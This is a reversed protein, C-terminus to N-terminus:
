PNPQILRFEEVGRQSVTAEIVLCAAPAQTLPNVDVWLGGGIGPDLFVVIELNKVKRMASVVSRPTGDYAMRLIASRAYSVLIDASLFRTRALGEIADVPGCIVVGTASSPHGMSPAAVAADDISSIPVNAVTGMDGARAGPAPVEAETQECSSEAEGHEITGETHVGSDAEPNRSEGESEEEPEDRIDPSNKIKRDTSEEVFEVQLGGIHTSTDREGDLDLGFEFNLPSGRDPRDSDSLTTGIDLEVLGGALVVPFGVKIADDKDLKQVAACGKWILEAGRVLHGGLGPVFHHAAIVAIARGAKTVITRSISDGADAIGHIRLEHAEEADIQSRIEIEHEHVEDLERDIKAGFDEIYSKAPRAPSDGAAEVAARHAARLDNLKQKARSLEALSAGRDEGERSVVRSVLRQNQEARDQMKRDYERRTNELRRAHEEEAHRQREAERLEAERLEAQHQREAERLEIQHQREAERLEIQRQREAKFQEEIERQRQMEARSPLDPPVDSFESFRM